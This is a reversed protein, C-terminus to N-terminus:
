ILTQAGRKGGKKVAERPKEVFVTAEILTLVM